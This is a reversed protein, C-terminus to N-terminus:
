KPITFSIKKYQSPSVEYYKQFTRIYHSSDRFGCLVAIDSLSYESELYQLSLELREKIIYQHISMSTQKQFDKRLKTKGCHMYEAIVDLTLKKNLNEKIFATVYLINTECFRLSARPQNKFISAIEELLFRLSILFQDDTQQVNEQEVMYRLHDMIAYLWNMRYMPVSILTVSKTACHNITTVLSKMEPPIDHDLNLLYREYTTDSHNFQAHQCNKQFLAICPGQFCTHMNETMLSSTGSRVLAVECYDHVHMCEKHPSDGASYSHYGSETSVAPFYVYNLFSLKNM